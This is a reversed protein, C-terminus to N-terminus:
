VDAQPTPSAFFAEEKWGLEGDGEGRGKKRRSHLSNLCLRDLCHLHMWGRGWPAEGEILHKFPFAGQPRPQSADVFSTM